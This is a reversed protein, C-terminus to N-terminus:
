TPTHRRVRHFAERLETRSLVMMVAVAGVALDALTTAAQMGIGFGLVSGASAAGALAVAIAAQQTGVGGPTFPLLAAINQAAVVLLVTWLGAGLHFAILFVYVTALRLAWAALKWTLVGTLLRPPARLISMGRGLRRALDRVRARQWWGAAMLGLILMAALAAIPPHALVHLGALPSVTGILSRGALLVAAIVAVAFMGELATELAITATITALSSGPLRQRVIGLRVSEGIRAPLLANAGNTGLFAGLTTGFRLRGGPYAHGVINHWSRAETLIKALHLLLAAALAGVSVGALAHLTGSLLSTVHM